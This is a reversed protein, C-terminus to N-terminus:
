REGWALGGAGRLDYVICTIVNKGSKVLNRPVTYLRPQNWYIAIKEKCSGKGGIKVGNFYTVDVEDIPSLALKLEKGKWSPPIEITKRFIVVGDFDPLGAKEWIGPVKM